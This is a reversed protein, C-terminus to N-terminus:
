VKNRGRRKAGRVAAVSGGGQEAVQAAVNVASRKLLVPIKRQNLSKREGLPLAKMERRVEEVDPIVRIERIRRDIVDFGNAYRVAREALNEGGDPGGAQDLERQPIGESRWGEM